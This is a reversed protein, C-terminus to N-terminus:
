PYYKSLTKSKTPDPINKRFYIRWEKSYDKEKMGYDLYFDYKLGLKKLLNLASDGFGARQMYFGIVQHYPYIYNIKKLISVLTDVSTKGKAKIYSRQVESTGSSYFPRVAIDILTREINTVHLKEGKATEIEEVGLNNTNLGSLCCIRWNEHTFIYKSIRPKSKFALDIMNQELGTEERIKSSQESNVYITKPATKILGHLYMATHHSLYSRSRLSLSLQYPSLNMWAFRTYTKDYNPSVLVIEKLKSVKTLYSLFDDLKLSKPLHWQIRKNTLINGIDIKLFLNTELTDFCAEINKQAKEIVTPLHQAYM